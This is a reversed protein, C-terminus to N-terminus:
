SPPPARNPVFLHALVRPTEPPDSAVIEMPRLPLTPSTQPDADTADVHTAICVQCTSSNGAEVHHHFGVSIVTWALLVALLPALGSVLRKSGSPRLSPSM